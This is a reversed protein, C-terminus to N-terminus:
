VWPASTAHFDFTRFIKSVVAVGGEQQKLIAIIQEKSFRSKKM